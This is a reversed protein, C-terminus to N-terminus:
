EDKGGEEFYPHQGDLVNAVPLTEILAIRNAKVKGSDISIVITFKGLTDIKYPISQPYKKNLNEVTKWISRYLENCAPEDALVCHSFRRVYEALEQGKRSASNAGYVTVNDVFVKM